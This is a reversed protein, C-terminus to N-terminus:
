FFWIVAWPLISIYASAMASTVYFTNPLNEKESTNGLCVSFDQFRRPMKNGVYQAGSNQLSLPPDFIKKFLFYQGGPDWKIVRPEHQLKWFGYKLLFSM